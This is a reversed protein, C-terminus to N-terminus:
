PTRVLPGAAALRDARVGYSRPPLGAERLLGLVDDHGLAGLMPLGAGWARTTRSAVTEEQGPLAAVHRGIRWADILAAIGAAPDAPLPEPSASRVSSWIRRLRSASGLREDGGDIVRWLPPLLAAVATMKRLGLETSLENAISWGKVSYPDRGAQFAAGHSSGSLDAIEARLRDSTRNGAQGAAAVEYGLRALRVATREALADQQPLEGHDGIYPSVVRHLAELVGEAVLHHPLTSTAVPDIVALEPLLGSGMVLRKGEPCSLCAVTSSEAGTGLTTPVAVLPMPRPPAPSLLVMGSRQPVTLRRGTGPDASILTAIKAQDLLSGGGVAVVLDATTVRTALDIVSDRDGAGELVSTERSGPGLAQTVRRHIETDHVGSDVLLLVHRNQVDFEDHLRRALDQSGSM